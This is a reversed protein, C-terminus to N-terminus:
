PQFKKKINDLQFGVMSQVLMQEMFQEEGDATKV